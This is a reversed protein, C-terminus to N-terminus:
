KALLNKGVLDIRSMDRRFIVAAQLALLKSSTSFILGKVALPNGMSSYFRRANSLAFDILTM